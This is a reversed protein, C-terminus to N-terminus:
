STLSNLHDHNEVVHVLTSCCYGSHKSHHVSVVFMHVLVTHLEKRFSRCMPANLSVCMQNTEEMLWQM